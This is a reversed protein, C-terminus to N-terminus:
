SGQSSVGRSSFFQGTQWAVPTGQKRGGWACAARLAAILCCARPRSTRRKLSPMSCLSPAMMVSFVSVSPPNEASATRNSASTRELVICQCSMVILATCLGSCGKLKSASECSSQPPGSAEQQLTAKKTACLACDGHKPLHQICRFRASTNFESGGARRQHCGHIAPQALKCQKASSSKGDQLWTLSLLGNCPKEAEFFSSALSPNAM